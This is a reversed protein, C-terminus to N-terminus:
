AIEARAAARRARAAATSAPPPPWVSPPPGHDRLGPRLAGAEEVGLRLVAAAQPPRDPLLPAHRERRRGVHVREDGHLRGEEADVRAGGGLQHVAAPAVSREGVRDRAEAPVGAGLDEALELARLRAALSRGCARAVSRERSWPRSAPLCAPPRARAPAPSM